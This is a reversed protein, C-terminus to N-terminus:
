AALRTATTGLWLGLGAAALCLGLSLAINAVARSWAGDCALAFTQLSFTSVTTYSGLFGLIGLHWALGSDGSGADALSIAALVGIALAGSTNVILTGWPFHEGLRRTM